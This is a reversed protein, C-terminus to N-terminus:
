TKFVFTIAVWADVQCVRIIYHPWQLLLMPSRMFGSVRIYTSRENQIFWCEWERIIAMAEPSIRYGIDGILKIIVPFLFVDNIRKYHAKTNGLPLQTYYEWVKNQEEEDILQGETWLGLSKGARAAVLFVYSTFFFKKMKHLRGIAQTYQKILDLGSQFIEQWDSFYDNLSVDKPLLSSLKDKRLGQKAYYDPWMTAGQFRGKPHWQIKIRNENGGQALKREYAKKEFYCGWGM